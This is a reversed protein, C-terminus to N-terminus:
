VRVVISSAVKDHFAQHQKDWLPWLYDLLLPVYFIGFAVTIFYRGASSGYGIARDQEVNRVRIGLAKKGLTQGPKKGTWYISYFIPAAIVLIIAVVFAIGGAVDNVASVAVALGIAAGVIVAVVLTDILLAGARRWWGSYRIDAEEEAGAAEERQSAARPYPTLETM